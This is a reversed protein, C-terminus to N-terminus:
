FSRGRPMLFRGLDAVKLTGDKDQMINDPNDNIDDHSLGHDELCKHIARLEDGIYSLNAPSLREAVYYLVYISNKFDPDGMQVPEVFRGVLGFGYVDVICPIRERELRQLQSMVNRASAKNDTVMVKIVKDGGFEFVFGEAGSGIEAGIGDPLKGPFKKRVLALLPAGKQLRVLRRMMATDGFLENKDAAGKEETHGARKEVEKALRKALRVANQLASLSADDFQKKFEGGVTTVEINTAGRRSRLTIHCLGDVSAFAEGQDDDWHFDVGEFSAKKKKRVDEFFATISEVAELVVCIYERLLLASV